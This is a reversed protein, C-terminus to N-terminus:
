RKLNVQSSMGKKDTKSIGTNHSLLYLAKHIYEIGYSDDLPGGGGDTSHQGNHAGMLFNPYHRNGGPPGCPGGGGCGGNERTPHHSYMVMNCSSVQHLDDCRHERHCRHNGSEQLSNRQSIIWSSRIHTRHLSEESNVDRSHDGLIGSDLNQFQDDFWVDGSGYMGSPHLMPPTLHSTLQNGILVVWIM